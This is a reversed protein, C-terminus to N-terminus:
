APDRGGQTRALARYERPSLGFRERFARSFHPMDGFGWRMAIEAVQDRARLPDALDNRCRELRRGRVLARVTTGATQFVHQLYGTSVGLAAAVTAASLAPDALHGDIYRMARLVLARRVTSGDGAFSKVEDTFALAILDITTELLANRSEAPLRELAAGVASVHANLVACLPSSGRVVLGRWHGGRPLRPALREYPIKLLVQDFAEGLEIHSKQTGDLLWVDGARLIDTRGGQATAAAGKRQFTVGFFAEKERGVQVAGRRASQPTGEVETFTVRERDGLDFGRWRVEGRFAEAGRRTIDVNAIADFIAEKWYAEREHAPVQDTSFVQTQFQGAGATGALGSRADDTM